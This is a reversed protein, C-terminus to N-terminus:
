QIRNHKRVCYFGYVILVLSLSIIFYPIVTQEYVQWEADDTFLRMVLYLAYGLFGGQFALKANDRYYRKREEPLDHRHIM